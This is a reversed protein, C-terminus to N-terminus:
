GNGKKGELRGLEALKLEEEAILQLLTKRKTEDTEISLQKRWHDINERAIFKHM